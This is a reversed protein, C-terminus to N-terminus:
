NTEFGTTIYNKIARSNNSETVIKIIISHLITTNISLIQVTKLSSSNILFILIPTLTCVAIKLNDYFPITTQVIQSYIIYVYNWM